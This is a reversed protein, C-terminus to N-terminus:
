NFDMPNYKNMAKMGNGSLWEQAIDPVSDVVKRLIQSELPSIEGLVHSILIRHEDGKDAQEKPQGVGIRLRWFNEGIKSIISKLGNHGGASGNARLRIKGVPINIDDEIVLIQDPELPKDQLFSYVAEGSNNMYTLPKLLFHKKSDFNFSAIEGKYKRNPFFKTCFYDALKNACWFGANHRTNEYEKGPNGLCVILMINM